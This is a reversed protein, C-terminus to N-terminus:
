GHDFGAALRGLIAAPKINDMWSVVNQSNCGTNGTFVTHYHTFGNNKSHDTENLFITKYLYVTSPLMFCRVGTKM